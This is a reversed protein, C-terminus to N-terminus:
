SYIALIESSELYDFDKITFPEIAKQICESIIINRLNFIEYTAVIIM